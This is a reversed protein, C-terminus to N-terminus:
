LLSVFSASWIAEADALTFKGFSISAFTSKELSGTITWGKGPFSNLIGEEAVDAIDPM